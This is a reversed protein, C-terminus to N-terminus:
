GIIVDRVFRSGYYALVLIFSAILTIIVAPKGRVGRWYHVILISNFTLWAVLSLVTKHLQGGAFMNELFLFGSAIALTLIATGITLLKFFYNEVTMLPPLNASLAKAKRKKLLHNVYLLQVSYLAALTLVSFALLSLAIHLTVGPQVTIPRGATLPTIAVIVLSLIAFTFIVPRLLVAEPRAGRSLNFVSLLASIIMLTSAMNFRQYGTENLVLATVLVHAVVAVASSLLVRRPGWREHTAFRQGTFVVALGYSLFTIMLLFTTM